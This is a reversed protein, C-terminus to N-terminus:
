LWSTAFVVNRPSLTKITWHHNTWRGNCDWWKAGQKRQTQTLLAHLCLWISTVNYIGAM